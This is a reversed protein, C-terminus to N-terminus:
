LCAAEADPLCLSIDRPLHCLALLSSFPKALSPGDNALGFGPVLILKSHVLSDFSQGRWTTSSPVMM